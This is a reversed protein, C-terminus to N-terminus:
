SPNHLRIVNKNGSREILTFNGELEKLAYIFDHPATSFNYKRSQNQHFVQFAKQLDELFVEQPMITMILLLNRAQRSLQIEFAHRWIELPNSLNAIFSDYYDRPSIGVVRSFQTMLDVIRPNYNKHDIIKLYGKSELLAM